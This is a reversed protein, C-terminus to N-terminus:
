QAKSHLSSPHACLLVVAQSGPRHAQARCSARLCGASAHAPGFCSSAQGPRRSSNQATSEQRPEQGAPLGSGGLLTGRRAQTCSPGAARMGNLLTALKDSPRPGETLMGSVGYDGELSSHGFMGQRVHRLTEARLSRWTQQRLRVPVHIGSSLDARRRLCGVVAVGPRRCTVAASM